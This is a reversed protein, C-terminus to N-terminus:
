IQAPRDAFSANCPTEYPHSYAGSLSTNPRKKSPSACPVQVLGSKNDLKTVPAKNVPALELLLFYTLSTYYSTRYGCVKSIHVRPKGVVPSVSVQQDLLAESVGTRFNSNPARYLSM